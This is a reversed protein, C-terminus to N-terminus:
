HCSGIQNIIHSHSLRSLNTRVLAEFRYKAIDHKARQTLDLEQAAAGSHTLVWIIHISASIHSM